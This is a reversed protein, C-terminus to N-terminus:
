ARCMDALVRARGADDAAAEARDRWGSPLRAPDDMYGSFLEGIVALAQDRGEAQKGTRYMNQKLFERVDGLQRATGESIGVLDRDCERIDDPTSPGADALAEHSWDIIDRTLRKFLARLMTQAIRGHDAAPNSSLIKKLLPGAIPLEKVQDLTFMGAALGDQLDHCIYAVDDASAAAQAEGAARRHLALDHKRNYVDLVHPVEGPFPGNHKAVGELTEWTLNLGDHRIYQCELESVVRIAQANHEFGGYNQMAVSLAEEGAHGFPPHGLDHALAVAEALDPNLGLSAAIGKAVRAVEITHTLRTRFHDGYGAVFVQTKHM